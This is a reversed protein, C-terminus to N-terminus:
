NGGIKIGKNKSIFVFQNATNSVPVWQNAKGCSGPFNSYKGIGFKISKLAELISGSFSAPKCLKISDKTLEFLVNTGLMFVGKTPDVQGGSSGQLYIIKRSGKLIKKDILLKHFKEVSTDKRLFAGDIIKEIKLVINSMRPVPISTYFEAKSGGTLSQGTIKATYVDSISEKLIGKDVIKIKKRKVGQSDYPYFGREDEKAYDYISVVSSAVKKGKLFKGKKSLVSGYLSSDSEAAHGFAEHILVGALDADILLDYHGSKYKPAEILKPFISALDKAKEILQDINKGELLIEYSKGSLRLLRQITQSDKKYTLNAYFFSRPIKFSVDTKDSRTIRWVEEEINFFSNVVAPIIEKVKKNLYVLRNKIENLEIGDFSYKTQPIVIDKNPKLKFIEKNKDFNFKEAQKASYIIQKLCEIVEKENNIDDISGFANNGNKTFIRMGIGKIHDKRAQEIKDGVVNVFKSKKDQIRAILYCDSRLAIQQLTVLLSSYQPLLAQM